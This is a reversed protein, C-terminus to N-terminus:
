GKKSLYRLPTGAFDAFNGKSDGMKNSKKLIIGVIMLSFGCGMLVGIILYLVSM